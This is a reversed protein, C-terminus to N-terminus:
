RPVPIQLSKRRRLLRRMGQFWGWTLAAAILNGGPHDTLPDIWRDYLRLARQPASPLEEGRLLSRRQAWAFPLQWGNSRVYKGTRYLVELRRRPPLSALLEAVADFFVLLDLRATRDQSRYLGPLAQLPEKWGIASFNMILANLTQREVLGEAEFRRSSTEIQAPLLIWGGARRVKEAFRDDELFPLSEDFRGAEEFFSRRLLFGQDGHICGPRDLRAKAEYFAYAASPRGDRRFRLAFHGAVRGDARSSLSEELASLGSALAAPSPFRSDAHLFLLSRGRAAAAGANMQRGRGRGAPLVRVPHPFEGGLRFALKMSADTSGGDCLLLEFSAGRQAALTAFLEPLVAAENLVPVVVSLEPDPPNM